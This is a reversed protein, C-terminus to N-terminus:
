FAPQDREIFHRCFIGSQYQNSQILNSLARRQRALHLCTEYKKRFSPSSQLLECDLNLEPFPNSRCEKTVNVFFMCFRKKATLLAGTAGSKEVSDSHLECNFSLLGKAGCM